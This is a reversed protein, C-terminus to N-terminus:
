STISPDIIPKIEEMRQMAGLADTVEHLGYRRGLMRNWDFRERHTSLFEMAKFYADIDGSMSGTITLGRTTVRSIDIPQVGGGITGSMVYRGNPRLMAIGEAVAGPAGSVELVVSPGGRGTINHVAALRDAPEPHQEISITHTAGWEKALLLRDDPAGIVITHRPSLTSVLAAAFLGLPGSGQIVVSDMYDIRGAAEVTNVVTRLACSGASAWGSDVDDPVRVRGQGPFVYGYDAFAGVFHPAATASTLGVFHRALCLRPEKEVTCVLCRGCSENAWVVRDGVALPQGLSDVEAGPGIAVIRGVMEHGLVLPLPLSYTPGLHNAWIHLDSGCVTAVDIEAVLAGAEPDPIPYELLTLPENFEELVAARGTSAM